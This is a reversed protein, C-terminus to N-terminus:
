NGGNGQQQQRSREEPSPGFTEDVQRDFAEQDVGLLQNMLEAQRGGNGETVLARGTDKWTQGAEDGARQFSEPSYDPSLYDPTLVDGWGQKVIDAESANPNGVGANVVIKLTGEIYQDEEWLVGASLGLKAAIANADQVLARVGWEWRECFDEFTVSLGYHGAEMGTMSLGSVGKGLVAGTGSGIEELEDVAARLGSTIKKVSAPDIHLDGAGGSM